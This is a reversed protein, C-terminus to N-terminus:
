KAFEVTTTNITWKAVTLVVDVKVESTSNEDFNNEGFLIDFRYINGAKFTEITEGNVKYTNITLTRHPVAVTYGNGVLDLSLTMDRVAQEKINWSWAKGSGLEVKSARASLAYASLDSAYNAYGALTLSKLNFASYEPQGAFSFTTGISNVEIRAQLPAVTFIAKLVGDTVVPAQDQGFVVLSNYEGDVVEYNEALTKAEALTAPVENGRLAIAAVKSVTSPVNKFEYAGGVTGSPFAMSEVINGSKDAFLATLDSVSCVASNEGAKSTEAKTVAGANEITIEVTLTGDAPRNGIVEKKCAALVAISLLTILIKKM